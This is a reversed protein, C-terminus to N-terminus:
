METGILSLLERVDKPPYGSYHKSFYGFVKIGEKLFPKLREAWAAIQGKRDVEIRGLTGKVLRRDGEWRVYILDSTVEGIQPMFPSAVWALVVNNNKLVSYFEDNLLNRNRIEVVYRYKPPLNTLFNRLLPVQETGFAHPFQLLLAGLKEKLLEMRELFVSTEEQCNELMKVHTIVKPFKLSFVFDTPTQAKWGAVSQARPIRYFTSDVEVTNFQKAYHALFENAALKEPYLKGKWFNHSWGMTGLHLHM